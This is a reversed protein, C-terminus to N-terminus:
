RRLLPFRERRKAAAMAKAALRPYFYFINYKNM